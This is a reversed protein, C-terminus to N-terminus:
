RIHIGLGTNFEFRRWLRWRMGSFFLRLADRDRRQLRCSFNEHRIEWRNLNLTSRTKYNILAWCVHFPKIQSANLPFNKITNSLTLLALGDIRLVGSNNTELNKVVPLAEVNDNRAFPSIRRSNYLRHVNPLIEGKPRLSLNIGAYTPEHDTRILPRKAQLVFGDNM